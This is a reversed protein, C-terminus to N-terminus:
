GMYFGNKKDIEWQKKITSYLTREVRGWCDVTLDVIVFGEVKSDKESHIERIYHKLLNM